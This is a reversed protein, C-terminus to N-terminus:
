SWGGYQAQQGEAVLVLCGVGAGTLNAALLVDRGPQEEELVQSSADPVILAALPSTGAAADCGDEQSSTFNSLHNSTRMVRQLLTHALATRVAKVRSIGGIGGGGDGGGIGGVSGSGPAMGDLSECSRLGGPLGLALSTASVDRALQKRSGSRSEYGALIAGLSPRGGGGGTSAAAAALAVVPSMLGGGGRSAGGFGSQGTPIGGPTVSCGGGLRRAFVVAPSAPGLVAALLPQLPLALKTSLLAPLADLLSAVLDHLGTLGGRSIESILCSVQELYLAQQPDSFLGFGVLQALRRLEALE